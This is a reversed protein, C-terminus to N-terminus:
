FHLGAIIEKVRRSTAAKVQDPDSVGSVDASNVADEAAKSVIALFDKPDKGNRSHDIAATTVLVAVIAKIALVEDVSTQADAASTSQPQQVIGTDGPDLRSVRCQTADANGDADVDFYATDGPHIRGASGLGTSILSGGRFFGCEVALWEIEAGSNNKAGIAQTSHGYRQVIPAKQLDVPAGRANAVGLASAAVVAISTRRM